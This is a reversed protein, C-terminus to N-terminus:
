KRNNIYFNWYESLNEDGEFKLSPDIQFNAISETEYWLKYYRDLFDAGEETVMFRYLGIELNNKDKYCAIGEPTLLNKSKLWKLVFYFPKIAGKKTITLGDYAWEAKDWTDEKKVKITLQQNMKQERLEKLKSVDKVEAVINGQLNIYYENKGIQARTILPNDLISLSNGTRSYDWIFDFKPELIFDGNKNILGWSKNDLSAPAIDNHFYNIRSFKPEIIFDGNRDIFGSKGEMDVGCLGNHFGDMGDFKPEIVLDGNTNIAGYKKGIKVVALGEKFGGNITDPISCRVTKLIEGKRNIFIKNKKRTVIAYGDHFPNTWDFDFPIIEEGRANIYGWKNNKCVDVLGESFGSSYEQDFQPAIVIKGSKDIFGWKQAEKIFVMALGEFFSNGSQISKNRIAIEGQTNFYVFEMKKDKGFLGFLSKAKQTLFGGAMGDSFEFALSCCPEIIVKGQSNIYGYQENHDQFPYLM